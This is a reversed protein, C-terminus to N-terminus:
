FRSCEVTYIFSDARYYGINYEIPLNNQDYVYRKRLLVPDGVAIDLKEALFVDALVSSIEERSKELVFGKKNEIIDYLPEEFSDEASFGLIPNFYSIFYVIPLNKKGRVRELTILRQNTTIEFFNAIEANPYKRAISKEFNIVEIGLKRMEQSFSMWNKANGFVEKKAVKTGYGKKRILLGEQVLKIIAQRLTNRSIGLDQALLVEKPLLKGNSYEEQVIMQRLVDEAQAHLPKAVSVKSVEKM